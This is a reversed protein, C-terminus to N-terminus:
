VKMDLDVAAMISMCQVPDERTLREHIRGATNRHLTEKTHLTHIPLAQIGASIHTTTCPAQNRSDELPIFYDQDVFTYLAMGHLHEIM